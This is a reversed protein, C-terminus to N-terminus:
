SLSVAPLYSYRHNTLQYASHSIVIVHCLAIAYCAWVALGAPWRKRLVVVAATIVTVAIAPVLFQRDLLSVRVPLEYLPSLGQPVVTKELYFWLSYFVMAPRASLPYRELPTIFANANQA